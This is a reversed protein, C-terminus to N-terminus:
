QKEVDFNVQKFSFRFVWALCMVLSILLLIVLAVVVGYHSSDIFEMIPPSPAEKLVQSRSGGM